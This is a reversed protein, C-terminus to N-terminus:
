TSAHSSASRGSRSGSAAPPRRPRASTRSGRRAERDHDALDVSAARDARVEVVLDRAATSSRESRQLKWARRCPVPRPSSSGPGRREVGAEFSATMRTRCRAVPLQEVLRRRAGFRPGGQERRCRALGAAVADLRAAAVDASRRACRGTTAGTSRGTRAALRPRRPWPRGRGATGRRRRGRRCAARGGRRGRTPRRAIRGIAASVAAARSIAASGRGRRARQGLGRASSSTASSPGSARPSAGRARPARSSVSAASSRWRATRRRRRARAACAASWCGRWGRAARRAHEVALLALHGVRRQAGRLPHAAQDGVQQQEGAGVGAAVRAACGSRGRGRDSAVGRGLSPGSASPWSSMTSAGARRDDVARAVLQVPQREVQHLVGDAVRRRARRDVRRTRARSPRRDHELDRVVPGADRGLQAVATKSRKTRPSPSRPLEPLPRPRAITRATASDWPPRTSSSSAGAAARAEDHVQRERGLRDARRTRAPSRTDGSATERHPDGVSRRRLPPGARESPSWGREPQPASSGSRRTSSSRPPLERGAARGRCRACRPSCCSRARGGRRRAVAALM